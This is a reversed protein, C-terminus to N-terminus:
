KKAQSEILELLEPFKDVYYRPHTQNPNQPSTENRGFRLGSDTLSKFRKVGGRAARRSLETLVGRQILIRNAAQASLTSGNERLLDGIARTLGEHESYDPLLNTNLGHNKAVTGLMRIKSTQSMRLMDAAANAFMLESELPAAPPAAIQQDQELEDLRISVRYRLPASWGMALTMTAHKDLVYMKRHRNDASTYISETVPACGLHPSHELKPSSSLNSNHEILEPIARIMKEIDRLVNAHRKGSFEALELSTMSIVRQLASM